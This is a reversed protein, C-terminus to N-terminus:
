GVKTAIYAKRKELSEIALDYEAKTIRFGYIDQNRPLEHKNVFGNFTHGNPVFNYKGYGKPSDCNYYYIFMFSQGEPEFVKFRFNEEGKVLLGEKDYNYGHVGIRGTNQDFFIEILGFYIINGSTDVVKDFWYGFMYSYQNQFDQKKKEEILSLTNPINDIKETISLELAKPVTELKQELTDIRPYLFPIVSLHISGVFAALGLFNNQSFHFSIFGFAASFLIVLIPNAFFDTVEKKV